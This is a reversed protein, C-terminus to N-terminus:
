WPLAGLASLMLEGVVAPGAFCAGLAVSSVGLNALLASERHLHTEVLGLVVSMAVIGVTVLSPLTLPAIGGLVFVGSLALRALGWIRAGRLVYARLVLRNPQM